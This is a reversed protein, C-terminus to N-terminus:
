FKIKFGLGFSTRRQVPGYVGWEVPRGAVEITRRYALGQQRDFGFRAFLDSKDDNSHSEWDVRDLIEVARKTPAPVDEDSDSARAPASLALGLPIALRAWSTWARRHHRV